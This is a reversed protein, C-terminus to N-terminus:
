AGAHSEQVPRHTEVSWGSPVRHRSPSTAAKQRSPMQIGGGDDHMAPRSNTGPPAPDAAGGPVGTKTYAPTGAVDHAGPWSSGESQPVITPSEATSSAPSNQTSYARRGAAVSGSGSITRWSTAPSQVIRAPAPPHAGDGM